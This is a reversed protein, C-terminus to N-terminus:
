RTGSNFAVIVFSLLLFSAVKDQNSAGHVAIKNSRLYQNGNGRRSPPLVLDLGEEYKLLNQCIAKLGDLSVDKVNIHVHVGCSKNVRIDAQAKLCQLATKLQQYGAAGRLKPSVIEFGVYGRQRQISGDNKLQWKNYESGSYSAQTAPLGAASLFVAAQDNNCTGICEIEVGFSRADEFKTVPQEM